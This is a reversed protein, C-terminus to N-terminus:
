FEPETELLERMGGKPAAPKTQNRIMQRILAATLRTNEEIDMVVSLVEAFGELLVASILGSIILGIGLGVAPPGDFYVKSTSYDITPTPTFVVIVGLAVMGLFLLIGVIRYIWKIIRLFAYKQQM